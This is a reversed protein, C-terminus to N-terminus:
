SLLTHNRSLLRTKVCTKNSLLLLGASIMHCMCWLLNKNVKRKGSPSFPMTILIMTSCLYILHTQRPLEIGRGGFDIAKVRLPLSSHKSGEPVAKCQGKSV